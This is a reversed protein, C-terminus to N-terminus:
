RGGVLDEVQRDAVGEGEADGGAAAGDVLEGEAEGEGAEVVGVVDGIGVELCNNCGLTIFISSQNMTTHKLLMVTQFGGSQEM